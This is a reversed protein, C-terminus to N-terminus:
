DAARENRNNNISFHCFLLAFSANLEFIEEYMYIFSYDAENLDIVLATLILLGFFFILIYPELASKDSLIKWINIRYKFILTLFVIAISVSAIIFFASSFISYFNPTRKIEMCALYFFDHFADIKVGRLRPVPFGFIRKGFSFEELFGCVGLASLFIIWKFTSSKKDIKRTKLVRIGLIFVSFFIWATLQEVVCDENFLFKRCYPCLFYVISAFLDSIASIVIFKRLYRMM